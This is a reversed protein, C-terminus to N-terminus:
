LMWSEIMHTHELYDESALEGAEVAAPEAVLAATESSENSTPDQAEAADRSQVTRAIGELRRERVLFISWHKMRQATTREHDAYATLTDGNPKSM